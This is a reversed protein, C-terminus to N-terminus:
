VHARGIKSSVSTNTEQGNQTQDMTTLAKVMNRTIRGSVLTNPDVPGLSLAKDMDSTMRGSVSTNTEVPMTTLAMDM